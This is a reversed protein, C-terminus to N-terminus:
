RLATKIAVSIICNHDLIIPSPLACLHSYFSLDSLQALSLLLFPLSTVKPPNLSHDMTNEFVGM